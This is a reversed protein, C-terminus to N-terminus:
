GLIYNALIRGERVTEVETRNAVERAKKLGMKLASVRRVLDAKREATLGGSYKVTTWKGMAVPEQIPIANGPHEKTPAILVLPVQRVENRITFSEETQRLRAGDEAPAWKEKPDLVPLSAVFTALNDAVHGLHLLHTAPVHELIIEGDIVLDAFASCNGLDKTATLDLAEQLDGLFDRLLGEATLQVEQSEPPLQARDARERHEADTEAFPTYTRRFGNFLQDKPADKLRRGNSKNEEQRAQTEIALVAGLTQTM